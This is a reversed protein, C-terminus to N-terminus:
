PSCCRRTCACRRAPGRATRPRARVPLAPRPERRPRDRRADAVAVVARGRQRRRVLGHRTARSSRTATRASTTTRRWSTRSSSSGTGRRTSSSRTAIVLDRWGTSDRADAALPELQPALPTPDDRMSVFVFGEWEEVALQPLQCTDIDFDDARGDDTRHAAVRRPRVVVPSVPVRDVEVRVPVRRSRCRDTSASTRCRGSPVTTTRIVLVPQDVVDVALYDGPEAVQSSRAVCIWDRRFISTSRTPGSPRIPTPRRHCRGRWLPVTACRSSEGILPRRAIATAHDGLCCASDSPRPSRVGTLPLVM